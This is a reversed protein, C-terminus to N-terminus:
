SHPLLLLTPCSTSCSCSSELFPSPLLLLLTPPVPPPAVGSYNPRWDPTVLRRPLHHFSVPQEALAVWRGMCFRGYFFLFFLKPALKTNGPAPALALPLGSCQHLVCVQSYSSNMVVSSFFKKPRSSLPYVKINSHELWFLRWRGCFNGYTLTLSLAHESSM